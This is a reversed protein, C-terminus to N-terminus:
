TNDWEKRITKSHEDFSEADKKSFVGRYKDSLRITTNSTSNSVVKILELDVMDQLLKIAKKNTVQILMTDQM